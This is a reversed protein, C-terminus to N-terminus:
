LRGQEREEEILQTARDLWFGYEDEAGWRKLMEQQYKLAESFKGRALYVSVIYVYSQIVRATAFREQNALVGHLWALATSLQDEIANEDEIYKCMMFNSFAIDYGDTSTKDRAIDRCTMENLKWSVYSARRERPFGFYTNSSMSPHDVLLDKRMALRNAIREMQDETLVSEVIGESMLIDFWDIRTSAFFCENCVAVRYMEVDTRDPHESKDVWRPTISTDTWEFGYNELNFVFGRIRDNHCMPCRLHLTRVGSTGNAVEFLNHYTMRDIEHFNYEFDELSDFIEFGKPHENYIRERIAEDGGFFALKRKKSALLSHLNKFFRLGTVDIQRMKRLDIAIHIHSDELDASLANKFQVIQGAQFDGIPRFCMYPGRQARLFNM